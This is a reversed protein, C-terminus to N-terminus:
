NADATRIHALIDIQVQDGVMDGYGSAGFASRAITGRLRISLDSRTGPPSGPPRYLQATLRVPRTVGRITIRGDISAGTQTAAVRTSVFSIQPFRSTDLVDPGRMADGAFPLGMQAGGPDLTVAVRSAAANDFDLVLDAKTVPMRGKLSSQGVNVQFGVSSKVPDLTYHLPKAVAPSVAFLLATAISFIRATM